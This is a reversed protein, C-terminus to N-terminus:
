VSEKKYGAKKRLWLICINFRDSVGLNIRYGCKAM